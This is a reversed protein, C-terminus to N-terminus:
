KEKNNFILNNINDNLFLKYIKETKEDLNVTMNIFDTDELKELRDKNELYWQNIQKAVFANISIGEGLMAKEKINNQTEKSITLSAAKKM